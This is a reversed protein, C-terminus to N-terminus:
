KYHIFSINKHNGGGVSAEHCLALSLASLLPSWLSGLAVMPLASRVYTLTLSSLAVSPLLSSPFTITSVFGFIKSGFKHICICPFKFRHERRGQILINNLRSTRCSPIGINCTLPVGLGGRRSKCTCDSQNVIISASLHVM